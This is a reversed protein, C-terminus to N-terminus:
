KKAKEPAYVKNITPSSLHKIAREVLWKLDEATQQPECNFQNRFDQIALGVEYEVMSNRMNGRAKKVEENAMLIEMIEDINKQKCYRDYNSIAGEEISKLIELVKARTEANNADLVYKKFKMRGKAMSYKEPDLKRDFSEYVGLYSEERTENNM